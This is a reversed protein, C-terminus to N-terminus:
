AGALPQESATLLMPISSARLIASAVSGIEQDAIDHARPALIVLTYDGSAVREPLVELASGRVVSTTVDRVGSERARLALAALREAAQEERGERAAEFTFPTVYMLEMHEIGRTALECTLSCLRDTSEFVDLTVLVSSLIRACAAVGAEADPIHSQPTLLVPVPSLRVVDSSISGSFGTQFLGQGRTGMVIVGAGHEEALTVIAHPPYGLPTEVHVRIGADELSEVQRRFAAEDAPSPERDLDIAYVLVADRVGLAGLQGACAIIGESSPGLDTAVLAHAFM